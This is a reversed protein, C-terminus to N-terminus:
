ILLTFTKFLTLPNGSNLLTSHLDATSIKVLLVSQCYKKLPKKMQMM